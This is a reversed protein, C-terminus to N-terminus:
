GRQRPRSPSGETVAGGAFAALADAYPEDADLRRLEEALLEGLDRIPLPLQRESQGPRQLTASRGDPRDIRLTGNDLEISM